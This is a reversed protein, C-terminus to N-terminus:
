EDSKADRAWKTKVDARDPLLNELFRSVLQSDHQGPAVPFMVSIPTADAQDIYHPLYNLRLARNRRTITAIHDGYLYVDLSNTM